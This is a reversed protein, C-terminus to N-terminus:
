NFDAKKKMALDMSEGPKPTLVQTSLNHWTLMQQFKEITEETKLIAMLGGEYKVSESSFVLTEGM